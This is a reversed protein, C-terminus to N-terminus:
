HAPLILHGQKRGFITSIRTAAATLVQLTFVLLVAEAPFTKFKLMCFQANKYM